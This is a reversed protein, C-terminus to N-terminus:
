QEHERATSSATARGVDDDEPDIRANLFATTQTIGTPAQATVRPEDDDDGHAIPACLALTALAAILLRNFKKM